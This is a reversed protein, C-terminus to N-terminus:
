PFQELGEPRGDPHIGDSQTPWCPGPSQLRSGWRLQLHRVAALETTSFLADRSRREHHLLIAEPPIVQRYGLQELRLCLDVDNGEVPLAEDFGGLKELLSKRVM